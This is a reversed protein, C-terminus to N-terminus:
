SVYSLIINYVVASNMVSQIYGTNYVLIESLKKESYNVDDPRKSREIPTVVYYMNSRVASCHVVRIACTMWHIRELRFACPVSFVYCKLIWNTEIIELTIRAYM